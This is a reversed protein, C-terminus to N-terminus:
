PELSKLYTLLEATTLGREGSAKRQKMEEADFAAAAQSYADAHESSAPSFYGIVNGQSDRIETLGQLTGLSEHLSADATFRNM